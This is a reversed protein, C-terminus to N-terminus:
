VDFIAFNVFSQERKKKILNRGQIRSNDLISTSTYKNLAIPWKILMDFDGAM